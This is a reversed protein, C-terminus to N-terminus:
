VEEHYMIYLGMAKGFGLCRMFRDMKEGYELQITLAKMGRRKRRWRVVARLLFPNGSWYNISVIKREAWGDIQAIAVIYDEGCM